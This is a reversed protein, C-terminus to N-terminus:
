REGEDRSVARVRAYRGAWPASDMWEVEYSMGHFKLTADRQITQRTGWRMIFTLTDVTRAAGDVLKDGGSGKMIGARAQVVEPMTVYHDNGDRARTPNVITVLYRLEGPQVTAM